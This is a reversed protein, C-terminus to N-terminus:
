HGPSQGLGADTIRPNSLRPRSRWNPKFPAYINGDNVVGNLIKPMEDNFRTQAIRLVPDRNPPHNDLFSRLLQDHNHGFDGHIIENFSGIRTVVNMFKNPDRPTWNVRILLTCAACPGYPLNLRTSSLIALKCNYDQAEHSGGDDHIFLSRGRNLLAGGYYNLGGFFLSNGIPVVIGSFELVNAEISPLFSMRFMLTSEHETVYIIERAVLADDAAEFSYRYCVYLGTLWTKLRRVNRHYDPVALTVSNDSRLLNLVDVYRSAFWNSHIRPIVPRFFEALARCTNNNSANKTTGDLIKRMTGTAIATREHFQRALSNVGMGISIPPDLRSGHTEILRNVIKTIEPREDVIPQEPMAPSWNLVAGQLWLAVTLCSLFRDFVARYLGIIPLLAASSAESYELIQACIGNPGSYFNRHFQM